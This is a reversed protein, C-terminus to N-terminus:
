AGEVLSNAPRNMEQYLDVSGVVYPILDVKIFVVASVKEREVEEPAAAAAAAQQRGRTRQGSRPTLKQAISRLWQRTLGAQSLVLLFILAVGIAMVSLAFM